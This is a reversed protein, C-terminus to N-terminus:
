EHRLADIPDLLSARRAPYFGFFIGIIAAFGFALGVSSPAIVTPWGAFHGVVATSIFGGVIGIIGGVLSLTVAEVLFQLLVDRARAGIAIRIGIERTRETVSVLMINMIGIGGVLLSVAAVSTLLLTLTQTSQERATVFQQQNRITFDSAQTPRLRHSQRLVATADAIVANINETQDVQLQIQNVTTGGFLRRQGASFPILILDDQDQFGNSGKPALVGVVQFIVNRIRISQGIPNGGGPFLNTVVTQGLVAVAAGTTEDAQSFFAGTSVPYDGITQYDPYVGQVRTNWNSAGAAVQAQGGLLPTIAAIDPVQQQIATVDAATLTPRGGQGSAVGGVNASGPQITVLNTGLRALQSQVQRSAGQGIAIVVIVAGVGIIIGLMTLLARLKNGLLAEVASLVSQGITSLPSSRGPAALPPLPRTEPATVAPPPLEVPATQPRKPSPPAPVTPASLSATRGAGRPHEM